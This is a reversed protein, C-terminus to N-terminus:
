PARAVILRLIDAVLFRTEVLTLGAPEVHHHTNRDFSAAYAWRVWPAWLRMIARRVPNAPYAYELLRIEGGPKVIRGLERLAPRQLDDDLVCFLFTAVAADFTDDAFATRLVDMEALAVRRGIKLSRRRARRLMARSLDIGVIEADPPYFPMNCGTGVGADLVLGTLGEFLVPRIPQYRKREFGRDLFDYYRAIREYAPRATGEPAHESM